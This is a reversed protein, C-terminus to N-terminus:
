SSRASLRIKLTRKTSLAGSVLPNEKKGATRAANTITTNRLWLATQSWSSLGRGSASYLDRVTHDLPDFNQGDMENTWSNPSANLIIEIIDDDSLKQNGGFPSLYPPLEEHYLKMLNHVFTRIKM